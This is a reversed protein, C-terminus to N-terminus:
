TTNKREIDHSATPLGSADENECIERSIHQKHTTFPFAHKNNYDNIDNEINKVFNNWITM